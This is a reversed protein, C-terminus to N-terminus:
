GLRCDIAREEKRGDSVDVGDLASGEVLVRGHEVADRAGDGRPLLDVAAQDLHVLGLHELLMGYHLVEPESADQRPRVGLRALLQWGARQSRSSNRLFYLCIKSVVQRATRRCFCWPSDRTRSPRAIGM